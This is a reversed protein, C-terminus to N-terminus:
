YMQNHFVSKNQVMAINDLWLPKSLIDSDKEYGFLGFEENSNARGSDDSKNRLM